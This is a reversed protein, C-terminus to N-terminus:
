CIDCDKMQCISSVYQGLCGRSPGGFPHYAAAAEASVGTGGAEKLWRGPRFEDVDGWIPLRHMTYASTGVTTGEPIAYGCLETGGRPVSRLLSSGVTPYLRLSEHIVADLYPLQSLRADNLEAETLPAVEQLLRSQVSPHKAVLWSLFTLLNATTDTGAVQLNGAETAVMTDTLEPLGKEADAIMVKFVSRGSPNSLRSASVAKQGYQALTRAASSLQRTIESEFPLHTSIYRFPPFEYGLGGFFMIHEVDTIYQNRQM